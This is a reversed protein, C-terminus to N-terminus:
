SFHFALCRLNSFALMRANTLRDQLRPFAAYACSDAKAGLALYGFLLVLQLM